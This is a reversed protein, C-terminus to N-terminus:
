NNRFSQSNKNSTLFWKSIQESIYKIEEETLQPYMPLSLIKKYLKETEKLRNGGKIRDKYAPQLHVPLPYHIGCGIGKELLFKYLRDRNKLEIVYLHMVHTYTKKISPRKINLNELYKYYRDAVSKRRNNDNELYKLKIRLIGAQLEDLRSNYGPMSSIYRREWGYQRLNEAQRAIKISNTVIAGGDGFCALNKTPYFSFAAADGFSGIMKNEIKAGHAQACDEVVKLGYKKAITLIKIMDAPHGYIHVPLIAKTKKTIASKILEPNICRTDPDIDVFVPIAGIQEIAAVSAVATHSVTIVEDNKQVGVALLALAIADTGSAVGICKKTGIYDAFEKEFNSVEKGLIYNGNKLVNMIALDIENAHEVYSLKPNSVPIFNM